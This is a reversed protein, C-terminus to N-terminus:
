KSLRFFRLLNEQKEKFINAVSQFMCNQILLFLYLTFKLATIFLVYILFPLVGAGLIHRSHGPAPDLNSYNIMNTPNCLIQPIILSPNIESYWILRRPDNVLGCRQLFPGM